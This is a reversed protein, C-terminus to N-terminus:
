AGRVRLELLSYHAALSVDESSTVFQLVSAFPRCHTGDPLKMSWEELADAEIDSWEAGLNRALVESFFAGARHVTLQKAFGDIEEGEFADRLTQELLELGEGDTTLEVGERAQLTKGLERSWHTFRVRAEVFTRPLENGTAHQGHLGPPLSLRRAPEAPRPPPVSPLRNELSPAPPPIAPAHARVSDAESISIPEADDSSEPSPADSRPRTAAAPGLHHELMADMSDPAASPAGSAASAKVKLEELVRQAIAPVQGTPPPDTGFSSTAIAIAESTAEGVPPTPLRSFRQGPATPAEEPFSSPLSISVEATPPLASPPATVASHRSQASDDDSMSGVAVIRSPEISGSTPQDGDEWDTDINELSGSDPAGPPKSSIKPRQHAVTITREANSLIALARGHLEPLADDDALVNEAFTKAREPNDALEYAEAALIELEPFTHGLTVQWLRDAIIRPEELRLKLSIHARLYMTVPTEGEASVLEDIRRVIQPSPETRIDAEIAWAREDALPGSPPRQISDNMSPQSGM